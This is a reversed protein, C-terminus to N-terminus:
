LGRQPAFYKELTRYLGTVRRGYEDAKPGTGNYRALLREVDAEGTETTPRGLGLRAANYLTLYAVTAINYQQDDHLKNWVAARDKDQALRGGNIVGQDICHNRADIAEAALIRGLGTASDAKTGRRVADDAAADLGDFRRIEWLMPAQLLAKRVNLTRALRTFLWDYALVADLAQSTSNAFTTTTDEDLIGSGGSEPVGLGELYQQVDKLLAGKQAVAFEVDPRAPGTGPDVGDQGLDRGSAINNDIEIAGDGTGVTITAIQDFAWNTPMPYGLNGSFGVSMDSVFSTGAYGVASVRSCANRPGYIGVEYRSNERITEFVGRFHPIVSDTIQQDLADFDVAFYIRTGDRFGHFRAWEIAAFADSRGQDYTFYSASGGWTQYIPFVRLGKSFIVALEGPQIMKNLSTNPVNCLYRGVTQYGAAVLSDARAPTVQSVCDFATGKRTTDGSSALLSAWTQFDGRGTVPLKVFSQFEATQSALIANFTSNFNVGTRRNFVMAATFLQVWTGTSGVKVTNNRVGAQTGPGFVGNAVDDSMGIEYQVAFMLARQVDRSYIGDCPVVFFNRRGVYKGNMWQQISRVAESGSGTVAYADMNLLAKFLKPVMADGPFAGAVGADAKLRRVAAAVRDSYVGDLGGGDYGKCYLGAQVIRVVNAPQTGTRDISPWKGQLTSLTTPGFSDSLATIGLEYQLARTLAYMLPWGTKGDEPVTGIGAVSGYTTNIFRQAQRVMEDAM